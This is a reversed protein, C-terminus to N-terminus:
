PDATALVMAECVLQSMLSVLRYERKVHDCIDLYVCYKEGSLFTAAKSVTFM